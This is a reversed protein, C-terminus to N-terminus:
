LQDFLEDWDAANTVIQSNNTTTGLYEAPTRCGRDVLFQSLDNLYNGMTVETARRNAVKNKDLRMGANTIRVLLSKHYEKDVWLRLHGNTNIFEDRISELESSITGRYGIRAVTAFPLFSELNTESLSEIDPFDKVGQIFVRFYPTAFLNYSQALFNSGKLKRAGRIIDSPPINTSRSKTPLGKSPEIRGGNAIFALETPSASYGMSEAMMAALDLKDKDSM